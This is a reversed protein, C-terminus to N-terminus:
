SARSQLLTLLDRPTPCIYDASALSAAEGLGWLVACVQLGAARATAIDVSSDGVML